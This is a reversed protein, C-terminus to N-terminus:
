QLFLEEKQLKLMQTGFHLMELHRQVVEGSFYSVNKAYFPERKLWATYFRLPIAPRPTAIQRPRSRESLEVPAPENATTGDIKEWGIGIIDGVKIVKDFRENRWTGNHIGVYYTIQGNSQLFISGSPLQWVTNPTISNQINKIFGISFGPLDNNTPEGLSQIQIEFYYEGGSSSLKNNGILLLGRPLETTTLSSDGCFKVTTFNNSFICRRIPPFQRKFDWHTTNNQSTLTASTLLPKQQPKTFDRQLIRLESVQNEISELRYSPKSEKALLKLNKLIIQGEESIKIDNNNDNSNSTTGLFVLLFSRKKKLWLSLVHSARAKIEAILRVLATACYVMRSSSSDNNTTTTPTATSNTTNVAILIQNLSPLPKKLPCITSNNIDDKLITTTTTQSLFLSRLCLAIQKQAEISLEPIQVWNQENKPILRSIPVKFIRSPIYKDANNKQNPIIEITATYTANNVTLVKALMPISSWIGFSNNATEEHEENNNNNFQDDICVISGERITEPFSGLLIFKSNLLFVRISKKKM